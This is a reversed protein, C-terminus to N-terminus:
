ISFKLSFDTLMVNFIEFKLRKEHAELKEIRKTIKYNASEEEEELLAKKEKCASLEEQISFM